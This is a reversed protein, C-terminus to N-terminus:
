DEPNQSILATGDGDNYILAVEEESISRDWIAIDDLMGIWNENTQDGGFYFPQPNQLESTFTSSEGEEGNSYHTLTNGTKVVVYHVWEGESNALDDYDCNQGGGDRHFEFQTPTYKIFERPAFDGGGPSYRNGLVVNNPGNGSGQNIWVSWTFDNDQTMQPITEAGADAYGDVGDFSLVMGREPDDIWEVGDYLEADAGGAANAATTGDGEDLPWYGILGDTLTGAEGPKTVKVEFSWETSREVGNSEKFSVTATNAEAALGGTYSITVIDGSRSVDAAVDEGNLTLKVSSQDVTTASGNKVVVEIPSSSEIRRTGPAPLISVVAARGTSADRETISEDVTAGKPTYAKIAGEVDPDNILVREGDVLSFIEISAGSGGEYWLVRYPYLGAESIYFTFQTNGAGRAGDFVGVEQALIDNYNAGITARFGDDSNVGFTYVGADLQLLTLYEGVIGDTSDYWGPIGPIEEDPYGGRTSTFNGSEVGGEFANQDQNVYEVIVPYYSWGMDADLDAENLYAEEFDPDIYEGNLQREANASRNAHMSERGSQGTSIQTINAIFGSDGKLSSDVMLGADVMSYDRVQFGKELNRANGDTDVYSFTMIHETNPAFLQAATYQISTVGDEKSKAVAVDAGDVTVVISDVDVEVALEDAVMFGFGGPGATLRKVYPIADEPNQSILATGDGDNYILAVEEESI